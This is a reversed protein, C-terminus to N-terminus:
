GQIDNLKQKVHERSVPTSPVITQLAMMGQQTVQGLYYAVEEPLWLAHSMREWFLTAILTATEYALLKLMTFLLAHGGPCSKQPRMLVLHHFLYLSLACWRM